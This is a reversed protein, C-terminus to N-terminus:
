LFSSRSVSGSKSKLAGINDSRNSCKNLISEATKQAHPKSIEVDIDKENGCIYNLQSNVISLQGIIQVPSPHQIFKVSKSLADLKSAVIKVATREDMSDGFSIIERRRRKSSTSSTSCNPSSVETILTSNNSFSSEKTINFIENVEHAFAAAKWCLSKKPFFEEYRSRASIIKIGKLVPLLKPVFREASYEVWGEMANTIIVVEGHKSAETLLKEACKCLEDFIIQFHQPLDKSTAVNVKAVFTSPCITDDWDFIIVRDATGQLARSKSSETPIDPRCM